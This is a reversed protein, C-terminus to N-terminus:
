DVIEFTMTGGFIAKIDAVNENLLCNGAADCASIATITYIGTAQGPDVQALAALRGNTFPIAAVNALSESSSGSLAGIEISSVGSNDDTADLQIVLYPQAASRSVKRTLIKASVVTPPTYDPKNRNVVTISGGNFLAATQSADYKTTNGTYDMIEAETLTYTGPQLYGPLDGAFVTTGPGSPAEGDIRTSTGALVSGSTTGPPLTQGAVSFLEGSPSTLAVYSAAYQGPASFNLSLRIYNRPKSFNVTPTLIKGATISPSATSARPASAALRRQLTRFQAREAEYSRSFAVYGPRAREQSWAPLLAQALLLTAIGISISRGQRMTGSWEADPLVLMAPIIKFALINKESSFFWFVKAEPARPHMGAM